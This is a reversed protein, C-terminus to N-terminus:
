DKKIDNVNDMQSMKEEYTRPREGGPKLGAYAGALMIFVTVGQAIVRGRMLKQAQMANGQHFSRLGMTLFGVTVLAGVPVLPDSNLKRTLKEGFTEGPPAVDRRPPPLGIMGVVKEVGEGVNEIIGM